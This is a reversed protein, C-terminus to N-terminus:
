PESTKPEIYLYLLNILNNITNENKLQQWFLVFENYLRKREKKRDKLLHLIGPEIRKYARSSGLFEKIQKRENALFEPLYDIWVDCDHIEGLIKHVYIIKDLYEKLKGEFLPEFAEITYRLHKNAIRMRHLEAVYKPKYIYPEFELVNRLQYFIKLYAYQFISISNISPELTANNILSQATNQIDDLTKAKKLRDFIKIIKKQLRGRRQQLRLCLRKIGPKIEKSRINNLIHNLFAIKVDTDRGDSLARTIGRISKQWKKLKIESFCEAFIRFSNRLRRSAIRMRHVYEIDKSKRVGNIEQRMEGLLKLILKAGYVSYQEIHNM